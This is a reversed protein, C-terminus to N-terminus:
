SRRRGEPVYSRGQDYMELVNEVPVDEMLFHSSCLVYGGGRGLTDVLRRVEERVEAPTGNPMIEQVDMGGYFVLDAGFEEKLGSAEMGAATTQVVDLIDLGADVLDKLVPRIAGCSHMMTKFGHAHAISFLRKWEGLFFMRWSRPSLLMSRQSAFDDGFALVDCVGQAAEALRRYYEAYFEGTRAVVGQVLDPRAAMHTLGLQMGFLDLVNSVMPSWGGVIRLYSANEEAWQVLGVAAEPQVCPVGVKGFDFWDAQPWRHADVDSTTEAHALPREVQDTYSEPGDWTGWITRAAKRIPWAAKMTPHEELPPGVYVANARRSCAGLAVLIDDRATPKLQDASPLRFHERLRRELQPYIGNEFVDVPVPFVEEHRIAALARERPRM